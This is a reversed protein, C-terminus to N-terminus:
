KNANTIVGKRKLLNTIADGTWGLLFANMLNMETGTIMKGFVVLIPMLVLSVIVRYRNDRWWYAIDFKQPSDPSAPKRSLIDLGLNLVFGAYAYLVFVLFLMPAMGNLVLEIFEKM